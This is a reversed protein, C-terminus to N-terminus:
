KLIEEISTNLTYELNLLGSLYNFQEGLVKAEASLLDNQASEVDLLEKTGLNYAESTMEYAKRALEVNLRNAELQQISNELKSLTNLVDVEAQLASQQISLKLQAIQDKMNNIEVSKKSGPIYNDLNISLGLTITGFDDPFSWSDTETPYDRAWPNYSAATLNYGLMLTPTWAYLSQMKKTNELVELNKNMAKLSLSKGLYKEILDDGDFRYTDIDLSGDLEVEQNMDIGLMVKFGMLMNQYQTKMTSLGPKQSEYGVQTRLVDLEPILGNRYNEQVQLYRKEALDIGKTMIKIQEQMNLLSYFQIKTNMELGKVAMEYSIEGAEYQLVYNRIGAGLATNIMLQANFSVDLGLRADDPGAPEDITVVSPFNSYDTVSEMYGPNMMLASGASVGLTPLFNNWVTKRNREAVKLDFAKAKIDLNNMHLLQIAKDITIVETQAALPAMLMILGSIMIYVKKM